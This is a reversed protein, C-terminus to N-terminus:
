RFSTIYVILFAVEEISLSGLSKNFYGNAAAAVGYYGNGFYINNLYFELIDEKSFKQELM